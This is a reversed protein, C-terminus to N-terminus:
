EVNGFFFYVINIISLVFAVISIVPKVLYCDICRHCLLKRSLCIKSCRLDNQPSSINHQGKRRCIRFRKLWIHWKLDQYPPFNIITSFLIIFYLSINSYFFSPLILSFFLIPNFLILYSLFSPTSSPLLYLLALNSLGPSSFLQISVPLSQISRSQMGMYNPSTIYFTISPFPPYM